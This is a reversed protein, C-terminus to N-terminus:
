DGTKGTRAREPLGAASDGQPRIEKTDLNTRWVAVRHKEGEKWLLTVEYDPGDKQKADWSFEGVYVDKEKAKLSYGRILDDMTESDGGSPRYQKMLNVADDKKGDWTESSQIQAIVLWAFLATFLFLGGWGIIAPLASQKKENPDSM